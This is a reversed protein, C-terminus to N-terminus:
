AATLFVVRDEWVESGSKSAMTELAKVLGGDDTSPLTREKILIVGGHHRRSEALEKLLPPITSCDYTVLVRDDSRAGALILEDPANRYSGNMWEALAM